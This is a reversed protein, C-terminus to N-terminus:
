RAALTIMGIAICLWSFSVDRAFRTLVDVTAYGTIFSSIMIAAGPLPQISVSGTFCDLAIAGLVASVSIIFSILLADYLNVGRMLHVTLTTGFRTVGPLISFSQALGLIAMEKTIIAERDGTSSGRLRLMPRTIILPCGILLGFALRLIKKHRM